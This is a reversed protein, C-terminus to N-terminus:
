LPGAHHPFFFLRCAATLVTHSGHEGDKTLDHIFALVKDAKDRLKKQEAIWEPSGVPDPERYVAGRYPGPLDPDSM